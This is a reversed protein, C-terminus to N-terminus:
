LVEVPVPMEKLYFSYAERLAAPEVGFDRRMDHDIAGHKHQRNKEMYASIEARGKSSLKLDAAQYVMEVQGLNDKVFDDFRVDVLRGAPVSDRDRLYRELFITIRPAWYDLTVAPDVMKRSTRARYLHGTVMSELSGIPDRHMIVVTADPWVNIIAPMQEIHQPSKVVWRKKEGRQWQLIKLMTNEYEYHSTQDHGLYHARWQPAPYAFEMIYSAFDPFQIEGDESIHDPDMPHQAMQYPNMVLATEWGAQCRKWRPDVGASGPEDGPLPLPEIAQWYPLDHMRSDAAILNLMHTTGSRPLGGIVIPKEIEQEHIEPHRRLLDVVLLRTAAARVCRHWVGAKSVETALPDSGLEDLILRLREHFDEPGFDELRTKRAAASLVAEETMDVPNLEAQEMLRRQAETLVPARLDDILIKTAM